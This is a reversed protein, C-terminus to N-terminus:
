PADAFLNYVNMICRRRPKYLNIRPPHCEHAVAMTFLDKKELEPKPCIFEGGRIQWVIKCSPRPALEGM